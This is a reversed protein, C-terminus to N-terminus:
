CSAPNKRATLRHKLLKELEVGLEQIEKGLDTGSRIRRKIEPRLCVSKPTVKQLIPDKSRATEVERNKEASLVHFYVDLQKQCLFAVACSVAFDTDFSKHKDTSIQAGFFEGIFRSTVSKGEKDTVTGIYLYIREEHNPAARFQFATEVDRALVYWGYVGRECCVQHRRLPM